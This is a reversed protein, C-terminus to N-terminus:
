WPDMQLVEKPPLAEGAALYYKELTRFSALLKTKSGFHTLGGRGPGIQFEVAFSERRNAAELRKVGQFLFL